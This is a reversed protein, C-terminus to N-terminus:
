VPNRAEIERAIETYYSEHNLTYHLSGGPALEDHRFSLSGGVVGGAGTNHLLNTSVNPNTGFLQILRRISEQVARHNQPLEHLPVSRGETKAREVAGYIALEIDRFVYAIDVKWGGYLALEIMQKAWIPDRLTGDWILDARKAHSHELAHTKGAGMGGAMFRVIERPGRNRLEREFRNHAYRWALDWSPALDRAVGLPTDRYRADLFRALDTSIIRGSRTGVVGNYSRDAEATNTLLRELATKAAQQEKNLRPTMAQSIEDIEFKRWCRM